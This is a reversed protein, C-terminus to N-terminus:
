VFRISSSNIIKERDIVDLASYRSPYDVNLSEDADIYLSSDNLFPLEEALLFKIKNQM